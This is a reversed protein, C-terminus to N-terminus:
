QNLLRFIIKVEKQLAVISETPILDIQKAILLSTAKTGMLFDEVILEVAIQLEDSRVGDPICSSEKITKALKRAASLSRYRQRVETNKAEKARDLCRSVYASQEVPSLNAVASAGALSVVGASVAELLDSNGSNAVRKGLIATRRSIGMLQAATSLSIPASTGSTSSAESASGNEAHGVLQSVESGRVLENSADEFHSKAKMELDSRYGRPMIALRGAIIGKERSSLNRRAINKAFALQFVPASASVTEFTAEAGTDRCARIRNWGDLIENDSGELIQIKHLLGVELISRKLNNFDEGLTAPFVSSLPHRRFTKGAYILTEQSGHPRFGNEVRVTAEASANEHELDSIEKEGNPSVKRVDLDEPVSLSLQNINAHTELTM